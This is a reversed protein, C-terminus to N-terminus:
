LPLDQVIRCVESQVKDQLRFIYDVQTICVVAQYFPPNSENKGRVRERQILQHNTFDFHVLMRHVHSAFKGRKLLGYPHRYLFSVTYWYFSYSDGQQNHM